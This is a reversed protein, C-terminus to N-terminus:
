HSVSLESDPVFYLPSLMKMGWVPEGVTVLVMSIGLVITQELLVGKNDKEYCSPNVNVAISIFYLKSRSSLKTISAFLDWMDGVTILGISM